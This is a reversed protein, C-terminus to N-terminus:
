NISEMIKETIKRNEMKNIEARTRHKKEEEQKLCVNNKKEPKRFHFSLISIKLKTKKKGFLNM